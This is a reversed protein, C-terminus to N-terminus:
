AMIHHNANIAHPDSVSMVIFDSNKMKKKLAKQMMIYYVSYAPVAMQVKFMSM